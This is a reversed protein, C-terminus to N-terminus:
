PGSIGDNNQFWTNGVRLDSLTSMVYLATAGPGFVYYLGLVYPSYITNYFAQNVWLWIAQSEDDWIVNAVYTVVAGILGGIAGGILSTVPSGSAAGAAVGILAGILIGVMVNSLGASFGVYLSGLQIHYLKTGTIGYNLTSGMQYAYRYAHPYAVYPLPGKENCVGDWYYITPPPTNGTPCPGYYPQWNIGNTSTSGGGGGGGCLIGCNAFMFSISFPAGKSINWAIHASVEHSSFGYVGTLTENYTLNQSPGVPGLRQSTTNNFNVLMVREVVQQSYDIWGYGFHPLRGICTSSKSATLNILVAQETSNITLTENPGYMTLCLQTENFALTGAWGGVAPLLRSNPPDARLVIPWSAVLIVLVTGIAVCWILPLCARPTRQLSANRRSM